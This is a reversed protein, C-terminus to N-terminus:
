RILATPRAVPRGHGHRVHRHQFRSRAVDLVRGTQVDSRPGLLPRPFPMDPVYNIHRGDIKLGGSAGGALLVPMDWLNSYGGDAIESSLYIRRNFSLREAGADASAWDPTPYQGSLAAARVEERLWDSWDALAAYVPQERAVFTRSVIGM